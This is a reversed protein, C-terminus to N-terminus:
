PHPEARSSTDRGATTRWRALARVALAWGLASVTVIWAMVTFERVARLPLATWPISARMVVGALVPLGIWLLCIATLPGRRERYKTMLM